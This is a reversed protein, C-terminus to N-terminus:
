NQPHDPSRLSPRITDPIPAQCRGARVPRCTCLVTIGALCMVFLSIRWQVLCGPKAHGLLAGFPREEAMRASFARHEETFSGRSSLRAHGQLQGPIMVDLRTRRKFSRDGFTHVQFKNFLLGMFGPVQSPIGELMWSLNWAESTM